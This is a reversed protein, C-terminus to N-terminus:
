AHSLLPQDPQKKKQAKVWGKFRIKSYVAKIFRTWSDFQRQWRRAYQDFIPMETLRYMAQLQAIHLEHYFPSAVNPMPHPFLGYRSWYGTDYRPLLAGLTSTGADFMQKVRNDQRYVAFDYLGWLAFVHGNLIHSYPRCPYEEYYVSGDELRATVGGEAVEYDFSELAREASALYKDNGTLQHARVLVSIGQGQGM